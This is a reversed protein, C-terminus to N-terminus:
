DYIGFADFEFGTLATYAARARRGREGAEPALPPQPDHCLSWLGPWPRLHRLPRLLHLELGEVPAEALVHREIVSQELRVLGFEAAAGLVLPALFGCAVTGVRPPRGRLLTETRRAYFAGAAFPILSLTLVLALAFLDHPAPRSMDGTFWPLLGILAFGAPAVFLLALLAGCATAGALLPAARRVAPTRAHSLAFALVCTAAAVLYTAAPVDLMGHAESQAVSALALGLAPLVVGFALPGAVGDMWLPVTRELFGPQATRAHMSSRGLTDRQESARM